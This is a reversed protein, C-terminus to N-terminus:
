NVPEDEPIEAEDPSLDPSQPPTPSRSRCRTRLLHTAHESWQNTDADYVEMTDLFNKGDFGGVAYMRGNVVAVGVNVRPATLSAVNTWEMTNPDFCEVTGLAVQGDSGGVAYIKGKYTCVGAGRRCTAMPVGMSWENLEPDYVEVSNLCDWADSGGVAYILDQLACVGLQSRGQQMRAIYEWQNTKPDYVVGNKLGASGACGGIVYLKGNYVAAGASPRETPLDAMRTWRMTEPNYMEIKRLEIQGSSGGVAVLKSDIVGFEFRARPKNMNPLSEWKNSIPDYSEVSSHCEGRNSGGAAILQGDLEAVGVACRPSAMTALSPHACDSAISFAKHLSKKPTPKATKESLTIVTLQKNLVAVAVYRNDAMDTSAIIKWKKEVSKYITNKEEPSMFYKNREDEPSMYYKHGNAHGNAGGNASLHKKKEPTQYKKVVLKFSDVLDQNVEDVEQVDKLINNATLLLTQPEQILEDLKTGGKVTRRVWDVATEFMHRASTAGSEQTAIVELQLRPLLQFEQSLVVDDFNKKVYDDVISVLDPDCEESAFERLELCFRPNMNQVLHQACAMKVRSIKWQRAAQYVSHVQKYPVEIKGTYAFNVLLEIAGINMSADLEHDLVAVGEAAREMYYDFLYPSRCALVARHAPIAHSDLRLVVDVFQNQKRLENLTAMTSGPGSLDRMSSRSPPLSPTSKKTQILTEKSM